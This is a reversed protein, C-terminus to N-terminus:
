EREKSKREHDELWPQLAEWGDAVVVELGYARTLVWRKREQEPSLAKGPAKTELFFAPHRAHLVVYDPIGVEGITVYRGDLTKLLGSNLRVPYWGRALLWDRLQRAIERERPKATRPARLRFTRPM